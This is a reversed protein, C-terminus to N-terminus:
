NVYEIKLGTKGTGTTIATTHVTLVIDYLGGPDSAAGAAQWLPQKRKDLTYNAAQNIEDANVAAALSIDNGLLNVNVVAGGNPAYVGIQVAGAGQAESELWVAKIKCTTPVRVIRYTSNVSAAASITVFDDIFQLPAAAGAGATNFVIPTADENTLSPSKLNEVAM